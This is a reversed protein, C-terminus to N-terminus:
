NNDLYYSANYSVEPGGLIVIVNHKRLIDLLQKVLEINWIYCSIGVVEYNNTLIYESIDNVNDKINFEKLDVDSDCNVKLLRIAVNPHIYKSNIGLLLTKM